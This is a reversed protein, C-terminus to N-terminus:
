LPLQEHFHQRCLFLHSFYAPYVFLSPSVKPLMPFNNCKTSSMLFNVRWRQWENFIWSKWRQRQFYEARTHEKKWETNVRIPFHHIKNKEARPCWMDLLAPQLSLSSQQSYSLVKVCGKPNHVPKAIPQGITWAAALLQTKRWHDQRYSASCKGHAHSTDSGGASSTHKHLMSAFRCPDSDTKHCCTGLTVESCNLCLIRIKLQHEESKQYPLDTGAYTSLQM